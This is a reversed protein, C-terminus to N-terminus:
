RPSAALPPNHLTSATINASTVAGSADTTWALTVTGRFTPNQQAESEYCANLAGRQTVVVKRLQDPGLGGHHPRLAADSDGAYSADV